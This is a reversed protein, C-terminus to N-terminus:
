IDYKKRPKIREKGRQRKPMKEERFKQKISFYNTLVIDTRYEFNLTIEFNEFLFFQFKQNSFTFNSHICM